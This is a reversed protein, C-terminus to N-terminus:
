RELDMGIVRVVKRGGVAVRVVDRMTGVDVRLLAGSEFNDRTGCREVSASDKNIAAHLNSIM